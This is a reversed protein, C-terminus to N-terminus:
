ATAFRARRAFNFWPVRTRSLLLALGAALASLLGMGIEPAPAGPGARPTATLNFSDYTAYPASSATYVFLPHFPASSSNFVFFGYSNPGGTVFSGRRSDTGISIMDSASSYSFNSGFPTAFPLNTVSLGFSQQSIDTSNDFTLSYIFTIPNYPPAPNGPVPSFFSSATVDYDLTVIAASVPASALMTSIFCFTKIIKKM